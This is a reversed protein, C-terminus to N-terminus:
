GFRFPWAIRQWQIRPWHHRPWFVVPFYAAHDLRYGRHHRRAHRRHRPSIDTAASPPAPEAKAPVLAPRPVDSASQSAAAPPPTASEEALGPLTLGIVLWLAVVWTPVHRKMQDIKQM